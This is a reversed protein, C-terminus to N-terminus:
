TTLAGINLFEKLVRLIDRHTNITGTIVTNEDLERQDIAEEVRLAFEAWDSMAKVEAIGIVNCKHQLEKMINVCKTNDDGWNEGDSLYFCYINWEDVPYSSDVVDQALEFVSSIKTGGGSTYKYFKESDVEQAEVDHVLYKIDTQAYHRKIWCELYWCLERVLDRKDPGMSASIDQMFFIAANVDPKDKTSWSKYEFDDPVPYLNSIDDPNYTECAISRKIMNKLTRKKHVLSQNGVKAIRDYKVKPSVLESNSKPELKPLRLEEGLVDIYEDLSVGVGMTHEGPDEGAQGPEDGPQPPGDKVKDGADGPGSGIGDQYPDGHKFRPLDVVPVNVVVFDKGRRTIKQGNKIHDKLKHKVKDRVIDHFRKHDERIRRGAM